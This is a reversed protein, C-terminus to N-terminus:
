GGQGSSSTVLNNAGQIARTMTSIVADIARDLLPLETVLAASGQDLRNILDAMSIDAVLRYRRDVFTFDGTFDCKWSLKGRKSKEGDKFEMWAGMALDRVVPYHKSRKLQPSLNIMTFDDTGVFYDFDGIEETAFPNGGDEDSDTDDEMNMAAELDDKLSASRMFEDAGKLCKLHLTGLQDLYNQIAADDVAIAKLGERLRKILKPIMKTMAQRESAMLKPQVSWILDDIVDLCANWSPGSCNHKMGVRTLVDKWQNLLLNYVLKPVKNKKVRKAMEDSVKQKTTELQRESQKASQLESEVFGKFDELLEAFIDVNTEFEALVHNVVYEVKRYIIDEGGEEQSQRSTGAYALENLLLRAPHEKQNFFQKDIIAVKIVPIQLRAIEARIRDSLTKDELIFEFMMSVIDIVDADNNDIGKTEDGGQNKSLAALLSNKIEEVSAQQLQGSAAGMFNGQLQTLGSLVDEAVYVGGGGPGGPGVAEGGAGGPADGRQASLLQQLADFSVQDPNIAPVPSASNPAPAQPESPQQTEPKAQQSASKVPGKLKITPLIGANVFMENIASYMPELQCVVAKEFLKFVVLKVDLGVSLKEAAQEFARCIFNPSVPNNDSNFEVGQLIEHFRQAIAVLQDRYLGRSKEIMNTFALSEELTDEDILSLSAYSFDEQEDGKDDGGIDQLQGSVAQDFFGNFTVLFHQAAAKQEKRIQRMADFYQAQQENNESKNGYAFMADDVGSFLEQLQKKLHKVAITKASQVLSSGGEHKGSDDAASTQAKEM